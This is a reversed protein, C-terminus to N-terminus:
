RWSIVEGGMLTLSLIAADTRDFVVPILRRSSWPKYVKLKGVVSYPRGEGAAEIAQSLRAGRSVFVEAGNGTVSILPNVAVEKPLTVCMDNNFIKCSASSGAAEMQRTRRELEAPTRAGIVLAAFDNQWSEYMLRFYGAESPFQFYDISPRPRFETKEGVHRDSHLPAITYGPLDKKPRIAYFSREYGALNDTSKATVEM